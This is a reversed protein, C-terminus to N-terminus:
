RANSTEEFNDKFYQANVLWQDAHNKPNRAIMDGVKPSGAKTDELSISVGDLPEGKIYPRMEGFETRRYRRFYEMPNEQNPLPSDDPEKDEEADEITFQIIRVMSNVGKEDLTAYSRAFAIGIATALIMVTDSPSYGNTQFREVIDGSIRYLKDTM